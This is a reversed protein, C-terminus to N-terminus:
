QKTSSSWLSRQTRWIEGSGPSQHHCRSGSVCFELECWFQDCCIDVRSATHVAVRESDDRVAASHPQEEILEVVGVM